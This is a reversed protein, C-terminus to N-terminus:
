GLDAGESNVKRIDEALKLLVEIVQENILLGNLYGNLQEQIIESFKEFKGVNTRSYIKIQESILKKLMEAALNKEKMKAIEELFQPDFLSFDIRKEEFLNIVGDSVVSAEVTENVENLSLKKKSDSNGLRNLLVRIAEFFSSQQREVSDVLFSCLSLAQHFLLAEKVFADKTEKKSPALLFNVM